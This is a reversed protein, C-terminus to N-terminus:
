ILQSIEGFSMDYFKNAQKCIDPNHTVVVVTSKKERQITEILNIVDESNKNDLSGTPEDALIIPPQKILARAISVRQQQGGSLQTPFYDKYNKLNMFDLYDLSLELDAQTLPRVAELGSLVNELVSLTPILNHFQFVFGIKQARFETVKEMPLKDLRDGSIIIEGESADDLGGIINLLTTKGSGSAGRIVVLEGANIDLNINKLVHSSESGNKYLKSVNKLSIANKNLSSMKYPLNNM